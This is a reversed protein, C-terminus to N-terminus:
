KPSSQYVWAPQVMRTQRRIESIVVHDDFYFDQAEEWFEM